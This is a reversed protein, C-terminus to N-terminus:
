FYILMVIKNPLQLYVYGSQEFEPPATVPFDVDLWVKRVKMEKGARMIILPHKECTEKMMNALQDRIRKGLEPDKSFKIFELWEPDSGKYPVPLKQQITLPFPIFLPEDDMEELEKKEKESLRSEIKDAARDLTNLILTDFVYLTMVFGVTNVVLRRPIILLYKSHLPLSM